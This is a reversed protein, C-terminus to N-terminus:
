HPQRSFYYQRFFAPLFCRLRWCIFFPFFPLAPDLFSAAQSLLSTDTTSFSNVQHYVITPETFQYFEKILTFVFSFTGISVLILALNYRQRSQFRKGDATLLTYLLWLVGM